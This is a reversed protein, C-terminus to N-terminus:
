LQSAYDQGGYFFRLVYVNHTNEDVRYILVYNNIVAKRYQKTQLRADSCVAYALPTKQLIRYCEEVRDLFSGAASPNSLKVAIYGIISDLDQVAAETTRLDYVTNGVSSKWLRPPM